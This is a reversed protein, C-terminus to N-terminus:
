DFHLSHHILVFNVTLPAYRIYDQTEAHIGHADAILDVTDIISDLTYASPDLKKSM